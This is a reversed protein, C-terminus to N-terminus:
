LSPNVIAMNETTKETKYNRQTKRKSHEKTNWQYKNYCVKRDKENEWSNKKTIVVLSVYLM